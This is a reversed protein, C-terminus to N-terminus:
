TEYDSKLIAITSKYEFIKNFKIESGDEPKGINNFEFRFQTEFKYFMVAYRM